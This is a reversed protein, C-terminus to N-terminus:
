SIVRRAVFRPRQTILWPILAISCVATAPEPINNLIWSVEASVRTGFSISQDRNAGPPNLVGRHVGLLEYTSGVQVLWGMGSDGGLTTAETAGLGDANLDNSTGTLDFDFRLENTGVVASIRNAGQRAIGSPLTNSGDGATASGLGFGSFAITKGLEDSGTYVDYWDPLPTALKVIALDIESDPHTVLTGTGNIITGDYTQIRYNAGNTDGPPIVHASTIVYQGGGIVTASANFFSTNGFAVAGPISSPNGATLDNRVVAHATASAILLAPVFAAFARWARHLRSM